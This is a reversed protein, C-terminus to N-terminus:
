PHSLESTEPGLRQGCQLHHGLAYAGASMSTRGEPQVQLVLLSDSGTEVRLGRPSIEVIEGPRGRGPGENKLLRAALVKLLRGQHWTRAGPRPAFARIAGLVREAPWTWDLVFEERSLPPAYTAEADCQPLRPAEGRRVLDLTEVAVEAALEALRAHLSGFDEEAGIALPRALIVDGTDLGKAMWQATVGTGTEGAMLARQIPAAGRYKPLLSAHLNIPGLPPLALVSERLIEGFAAVVLVDPAFAQLQEFGEGVSVREPQLVPLGMAQAAVKIPSPRLHRGRGAPRDPRTGVAIIDDPGAALAKLLPIAFDSTALLVLRV